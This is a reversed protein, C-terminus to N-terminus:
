SIEFLKDFNAIELIKRIEPNCCVIRVRSRDENVHERLLLLMGLASSDMYHTRSLDIVYCQIEAPAEEYMERFARNLKFDFKGGISLTRTTGETVVDHSGSMVKNEAQM